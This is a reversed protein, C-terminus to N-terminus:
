NATCLTTATSSPNTQLKATAVVMYTARRHLYLHAGIRDSCAVVIAYRMYMSM